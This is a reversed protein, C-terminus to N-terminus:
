LSPEATLFEPQEQLPGLNSCGCPSYCGGDTFVPEHSGIDEQDVCWAHIYHLCMCVPLTSM